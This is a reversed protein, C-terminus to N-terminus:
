TGAMVIPLTPTSSGGDNEVTVGFGKAPVGKPLEPMVVSASGEADPKFTGAPIPSKGDAPLLWLEYTKGEAVPTMHTAVFVLAGKDALYAAMAVPSPVTPVAGHAGKPTAVALHLAVQQANAATLTELADQAHVARRSTEELRTQQEAMSNQLQERQHMQLGAVFACGAAAAWGTWALVWAARRPKHEDHSEMPLIRGQRSAFMGETQAPASRPVEAGTGSGSVTAGATGSIAASAIPAPALVTKPEKAIQRMLRDKAQAPPAEVEATMAYAVLDGQLKGIGTRCEACEAVHQRAEQMQEASLFQLAFLILDDESLHKENNM